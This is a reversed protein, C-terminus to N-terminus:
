RLSYSSSVSSSANRKRLGSSTPWRMWIDMLDEVEDRIRQELVDIPLADLEVTNDGYLAIFEPALNSGPKTLNPPLNYTTIDQWL